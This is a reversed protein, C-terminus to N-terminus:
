FYLYLAHRKERELTTKERGLEGGKSKAENKM